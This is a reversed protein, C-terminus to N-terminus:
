NQIHRIDYTVGCGDYTMERLSDNPVASPAGAGGDGPRPFRRTYVVPATPDAPLANGGRRPQQTVPEGEHGALIYQTNALFKDVWSADIVGFGGTALKDFEKRHAELKGMNREYRAVSGVPSITINGQFIEDGSFLIRERKDLYATGGETHNPIVFVDVERNGLQFQYGDGIIEKPYDRPFNIGAFSQFPLTAKKATEESMFAKDFYANNATHDFHDHTNAVYRVPKKTLTQLYERINGAGYGTDIALAENDGEIMYSYDGDSEIQWTGPAILTSKYYPVDMPTLTGDQSKIMIAHKSSFDIQKVPTRAADPKPTQGASWTAFVLATVAPLLTTVASRNRGRFLRFKKQSPSPMIQIERPVRTM